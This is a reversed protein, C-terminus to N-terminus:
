LICFPARPAGSPPRMHFLFLIKDHSAASEHVDRTLTIDHAVRVYEDPISDDFANRGGVFTRVHRIIFDNVCAPKVSHGPENVRVRMEEARARRAFYKRAAARLFEHEFDRAARYTGRYEPRQHARGTRLLEVGAHRRQTREAIEPKRVDFHAVFYPFPFSLRRSEIQQHRSGRKGRRASVPVPSESEGRGSRRFKGREHRLVHHVSRVHHLYAYRAANRVCLLFAFRAFDFHRFLLHLRRAVPRVFEAFLDRRM